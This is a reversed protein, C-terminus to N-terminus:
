LEIDSSLTGGYINGNETTVTIAVDDIIGVSFTSTLASSDIIYQTSMGSSLETLMVECVGESFVFDITLADGDYICEVIQRSPMNPRKHPERGGQRRLIIRTDNSNKNDAASAVESIGPLCIVCLFLLLKILKM